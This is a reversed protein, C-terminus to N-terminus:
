KDTYYYYEVTALFMKIIAFNKGSGPDSPVPNFHISYQLKPSICYLNTNCYEMVGISWYFIRFIRDSENKIQLM